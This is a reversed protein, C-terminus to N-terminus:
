NIRVDHPKCSSSADRAQHSNVPEAFPRLRRCPRLGFDLVRSTIGSLAMVSIMQAIRVQQCDCSSMKQQMEILRVLPTKQKEIVTQLPSYNNPM